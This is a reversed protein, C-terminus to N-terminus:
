AVWAKDDVEERIYRWGNMREKGPDLGTGFSRVGVPVAKAGTKGARGMVWIGKVPGGPIGHQDMCYVWLGVGTQREIGM